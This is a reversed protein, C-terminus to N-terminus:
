RQPTDGMGRGKRRPGGQSTRSEGGTNASDARADKRSVGQRNAAVTPYAVHVDDQQPTTGRRARCRHGYHAHRPSLAAKGAFSARRHTTIPCDLSHFCLHFAGVQRSWRHFPTSISPARRGASLATGNPPKRRANQTVGGGVSCRKWRFPVDGVSRSRFRDHMMAATM